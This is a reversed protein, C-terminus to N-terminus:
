LPPSANQRGGRWWRTRGSGDSRPGQRRRSRPQGGPYRFLLARSASYSIGEPGDRCEAAVPEAKSGTMEGEKRGVAGKRLDHALSGMSPRHRSGRLEPESSEGRSTDRGHHCGSDLVDGLHDRAPGLTLAKDDGALDAL